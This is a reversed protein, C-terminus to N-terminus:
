TVYNPCLEWQIHDHCNIHGMKVFEWKVQNDFCMKCLYSQPPCEKGNEKKISPDPRGLYM